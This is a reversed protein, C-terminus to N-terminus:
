TLIQVYFPFCVVNKNFAYLHPFKSIDGKRIPRDIYDAGLVKTLSSWLDTSVTNKM